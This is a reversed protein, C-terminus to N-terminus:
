ENNSLWIVGEDNQKNEQLGDPMVRSPYILFRRKTSVACYAWEKNQFEPTPNICTKLAFKHNRM